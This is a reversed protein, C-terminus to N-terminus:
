VKDEQHIVQEMSTVNGVLIDKIYGETSLTSKYEGSTVFLTALDIAKEDAKELYGVTFRDIEVNIDKLASILLDKKEKININM